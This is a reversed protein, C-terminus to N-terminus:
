KNEIRKVEISIGKRNLRIYRPCETWELTQEKCYQIIKNKEEESNFEIIVVLGWNDTNIIKFERLDTLVKKRKEELIKLRAPLHQLQEYIKKLIIEDKFEPTHINEFISKEKCSIFGGKGADVPKWRGFSGVLINAFRGDCLSTGISGSVDLIVLCGYRQCLEYIEEFSQEAHYGGPNQYLLAAYQKSQLKKQLDEIELKADTCKVEEVKLGIKLPATKYTLWGGEEPVLITSGKPLLSLATEIAANGRSTLHIYHHNIKKKLIKIIELYM